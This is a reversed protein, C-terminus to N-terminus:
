TKKIKANIYNNIKTITRYIHEKPRNNEQWHKKEDKYLYDILKQIEQKITKTM